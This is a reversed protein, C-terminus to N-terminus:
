CLLIIHTHYNGATKTTVQKTVTNDGVNIVNRATVSVAYEVCADLDEIIFIDEESTVTVTGKIGSVTNVWEIIYKTVCDSNLTPKKWNVMINVSGAYLSLEEVGGPV